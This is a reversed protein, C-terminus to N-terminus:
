YCPGKKGAGSRLVAHRILGVGAALVQVKEMGGGDERGAARGLCGGGGGRGAGGRGGGAGGPGGRGAAAPGRGPRGVAPGREPQPGRLRQLRKGRPGRPRAWGLPPAEQARGARKGSATRLAGAKGGGCAYKARRGKGRGGGERGAGIKVLGAKGGRVVGRQSGAGRAAPKAQTARRGPPTRASARGQGAGEGMGRREVVAEEGEGGGIRTVAYGVRTAGQAGM